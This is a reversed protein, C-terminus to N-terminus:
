LSSISHGGDVAIISGTMYASADAALLLIVGDLDSPQGVRGQPIRKIMRQGASTALFERNMDTEIYGPAIANVRIGDDALELALARTLHVLGAKAAAYASVQKTVRLALLSAVNIISGRAGREVMRRAAERAM